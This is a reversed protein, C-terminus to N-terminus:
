RRRGRVGRGSSKPLRGAPVRLSRVALRSRGLAGAEGPCSWPDTGRDGASAGTTGLLRRNLALPFARLEDDKLDGHLAPPRDAPVPVLPPEVGTIVIAILPDALSLGLAVLVASLLVGLSVIGDTRAHYGDAVLAPSELRRGAGLRVQAATENGAFGVIGAIGLALLHEPAQPSIIKEVAVAGAVCASAFIALVVGLGAYREAGTSRLLFAAGLPVATLADGFNHILDALLAVSGTAVYVAAQIVATAGLVALSFSVARLGARSRRISPDILGHSHTHGSRHRHEQDRRHPATPRDPDHTHSGSHPHAHVYDQGHRHLDGGLHEYASSSDAM